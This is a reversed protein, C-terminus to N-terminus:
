LVDRKPNASKIFDNGNNLKRLYLYFCQDEAKLTTPQPGPNPGTGGLEAILTGGAHDLAEDLADSTLRSLDDDSMTEISIIPTDDYLHVSAAAAGGAWSYSILTTAGQHRVSYFGRLESDALEVGETAFNRLREDNSGSIVSLAASLQSVFAGVQGNSPGSGNMTVAAIQAWDEIHGNCAVLAVRAQLTRMGGAPTIERRLAVVGGAQSGDQMRCLHPVTTLDKGIAYTVTPQDVIASAGQQGFRAGITRRIASDYAAYVPSLNPSSNPWDFTILRLTGTDGLTPVIRTRDSEDIVPLDGLVPDDKALSAIYDRLAGITVGYRTNQSVVLEGTTPDPVRPARRVVGVVAGSATDFIPAGSFGQEQFTSYQFEHDDVPPLSSSGDVVVRQEQFPRGVPPNQLVPDAFSAVAFPPSEPLGEALCLPRPKHSMGVVKFVLVDVVFSPKGIIRAEYARGDLPDFVTLWDSATRKAVDTDPLRANAEYADMDILHASTVFYSSPGRHLIAFGTGYETGQVFVISAKAENSAVLGAGMARAQMFILFIGVLVGHTPRM